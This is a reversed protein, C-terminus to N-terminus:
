PAKKSHCVDTKGLKILQKFVCNETKEIKVFSIM